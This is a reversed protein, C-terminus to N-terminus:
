FCLVIRVRIAKGAVAPANLYIIKRAFSSLKWFLNADNKDVDAVDSFCIFFLCLFKLM